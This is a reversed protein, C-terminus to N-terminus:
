SLDPDLLHLWLQYAKSVITTKGFGRPWVILIKKPQTQLHRLKLWERATTELWMCLPRHVLPSLWRNEPKRAMYPAIGFAYNAFSWFDHRCLNRFLEIEAATNYTLEPKGM